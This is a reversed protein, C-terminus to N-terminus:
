QDTDYTQLFSAVGNPSSSARDIAARFTAIWDLKDESTAAQLPYIRNPTNLVFGNEGVGLEYPASEDVSFGETETGLVIEGLPFADQSHPFLLSLSYFALLYRFNLMVVSKAIFPSVTPKEFYMIRQQDM